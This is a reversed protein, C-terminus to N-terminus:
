RRGRPQEREVIRDVKDEIRDLRNTMSAQNARVESLGVSIAVYAALAAFLASAAIQVVVGKAGNEAV